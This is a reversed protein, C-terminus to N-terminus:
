AFYKSGKVILLLGMAIVAAAAVREGLFRTRM